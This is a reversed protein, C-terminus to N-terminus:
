TPSGVIGSSRLHDMGGTAGAVDDCVVTDYSGLRDHRGLMVIPVRSALNELWEPDVLPSVAIIGDVLGDAM